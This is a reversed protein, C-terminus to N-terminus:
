RGSKSSCESDVVVDKCGEICPPKRPWLNPPSPPSDRSELGIYSSAHVSSPRRCRAGGDHVTGSSRTATVESQHAALGKNEISTPVARRSPPPQTRRSRCRQLFHSSPKMKPQVPKTISTSRFGHTCSAGTAKAFASSPTQVTNKRTPTRRNRGSHSPHRPGNSCRVAGGLLAGTATTCHATHRMSRCRPSSMQRVGQPWSKWRSQRSSQTNIVRFLDGSQGNHRSLSSTTSVDASFGHPMLKTPPVLIIKQSRARHGTM